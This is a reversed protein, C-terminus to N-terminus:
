SRTWPVSHDRKSLPVTQCVHVKEAAVLEQEDRSSAITLLCNMCISDFSGDSKRRHPYFPERSLAMAYRTLNTLRASSISSCCDTFSKPLGCVVRFKRNASSSLTSTIRFQCRTIHKLFAERAVSKSNPQAAAKLLRKGEECDSLGM